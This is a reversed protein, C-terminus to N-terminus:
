DTRIQLFSFSCSRVPLDPLRQVSKRAVALSVVTLGNQNTSIFIFLIARAPNAVAASIKTGGGAIGGDIRESEYFHFHVLDCPCSQCGSCQNERWRSGPVAKRCIAPAHRATM